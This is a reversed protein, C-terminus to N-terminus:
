VLDIGEEELDGGARAGQRVKQCGGIQGLSLGVARQRSLKWEGDAKPSKAIAINRDEACVRHEILSL